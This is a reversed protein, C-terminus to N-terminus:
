YLRAIKVGKYYKKLIEQYNAGAQAMGFAGVQCLGVGHGWGRGSFNFYSIKGEEDYERDIVFLTERLGLVRRIRLGRVVADTEKGKILLELVRKSDGKRKPVLDILEGVPYFENIRAELEKRSIRVQWSHFASNRDLINTLPPYVVEVVKVKGEREIWRIKEGGLLHIRSAFSFEDENNRLLFLDPSLPITKREGEEELEIKEEKLSLFIGERYIPRYSRIAKGLYYIVEARNLRREPDKIEETSPFIGKHILYAMENRGEGQWDKFEKLIFERENELMLSETREEWGFTEFLLIALSSFNLIEKRLFTKKEKGLFALAREMWEAAEEFSAEERYYPTDTRQPIIGACILFAIVRTANKGCVDIPALMNESKLLFEKERSFICETSRLYPLSPGLFVDEVNETKGGCTSTYLAHILKGKYLIVEGRTEDVARTSLPNEASMGEYLQSAPSDDLDFGLDENSGLSKMAYTRAAVAQAKQAELENFSYPSLESPVVGKLYDEINLINILLLGKPSTRLVFIGRYDRGNYSLYSWASSPIFYLVSGEDLAKLEDNVLIWHLRSGDMTVEERIIWADKVGSRVLEKVFSLADGRTLFGEVRVQFLSDVDRKTESKISVRKAFKDRIRQAIEEAEKRKERQAVLVSFEESLKERFGRIFVEDADESILSYSSNVEYVKMGSSAHIRIESLKDGLCIRIIPKSILYGHFFKKEKGFEVPQGGFIFFSLWASLSYKM